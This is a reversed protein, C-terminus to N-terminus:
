RKNRIEDLMEQSTMKERQRVTKLFNEQQETRVRNIVEKTKENKEEVVDQVTKHTVVQRVSEKASQEALSKYSPELTNNLVAKSEKIDAQLSNPSANIIHQKFETQQLTSQTSQQASVSSGSSGSDAYNPKTIQPESFASDVKKTATATATSNGSINVDSTSRSEVQGGITVNENKNVSVQGHM